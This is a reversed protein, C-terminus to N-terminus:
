KLEYYFQKTFHQILYAYAEGSINVDHSIGVRGLIFEVIHFIEHAIFEHAEDLSMDVLRLVVQGGSLQVTRGKGIDELKLTIKEEDTLDVHHNLKEFVEEDSMDICVMVDFPYCGADMKFSQQNLRRM